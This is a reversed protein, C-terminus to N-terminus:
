VIWVLNKEGESFMHKDRIFDYKVGDKKSTDTYQQKKNPSRVHHKVVWIMLRYLVNFFIEFLSWIILPGMEMSGVM